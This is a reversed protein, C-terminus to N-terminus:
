DNTNEKTFGNNVPIDLVERLFKGNEDEDNDSYLAGDIYWHTLKEKYPSNVGVKNEIRPNKQYAYQILANEMEHIMRNDVETQENDKPAILVMYPIGGMVKTLAKDLKWRKNSTFCEDKLTQRWTAGVYVPLLKGDDMKIYFVYCGRKSTYTKYRKLLRRTPFENVYRGNIEVVLSIEIPDSVTFKRPVDNM